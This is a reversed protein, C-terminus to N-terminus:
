TRKELNRSQRVIKEISSVAAEDDSTVARVAPKARTVETRGMRPTPDMLDNLTLSVGGPDKLVDADADEDNYTVVDDTTVIPKYDSPPAVATVQPPLIDAEVKLGSPYALLFQQCIEDLNKVNFGEKTFHDVIMQRLDTEEFELTIKM